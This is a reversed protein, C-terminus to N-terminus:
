YIITQITNICFKHPFYSNTLYFIYLLYILNITKTGFIHKCKIFIRGTNNSYM